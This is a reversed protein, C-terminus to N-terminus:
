LKSSMRVPLFRVKSVRECGVSESQKFDFFVIVIRMVLVSSSSALFLSRKWPQLVAFSFSFILLNTRCYVSLSVVSATSANRCICPKKNNERNDQTKQKSFFMALPVFPPNGNIRKAVLASVLIPVPLHDLPFFLEGTRTTEPFLQM